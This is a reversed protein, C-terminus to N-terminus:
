LETTLSLTMLFVKLGFKGEEDINGSGKTVFHGKEGKCEITM